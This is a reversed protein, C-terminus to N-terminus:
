PLKWPLRLKLKTLVLSMHFEDIVEVMHLIIIWQVLFSICKGDWFLFIFFLLHFCLFLLILSYTLCKNKSTLKSKNAERKREGLRKNKKLRIYGYGSKISVNGKGIKIKELNDMSFHQKKMWKLNQSTYRVLNHM